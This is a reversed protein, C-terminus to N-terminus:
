DSPHFTLGRISNDGDLEDGLGMEKMSVQSREKILELEGKLILLVMMTPIIFCFGFSFLYETAGLLDVFSGKEGFEPASYLARDRHFLGLCVHGLRLNMSLFVLTKLEIYAQNFLYIYVLNKFRFLTSLFYHPDSSSFISRKGTLNSLLTREAASIWNLGAAFALCSFVPVLVAKATILPLNCESDFFFKTVPTVLSILTLLPLSLMVLFYQVPKPCAAKLHSFFLSFCLFFMLMRLFTELTSFTPFLNFEFLLYSMTLCIITALIALNQLQNRLFYSTQSFLFFFVFSNILIVSCSFIVLGSASCFLVSSPQSSSADLCHFWSVQTSM